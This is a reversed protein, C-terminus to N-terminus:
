REENGIIPHLKKLCYPCYGDKEYYYEKSEDCDCYYYTM